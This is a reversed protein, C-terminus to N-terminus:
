LFLKDHSPQVNKGMLLLLMIAYQYIQRRLAMAILVKGTLCM